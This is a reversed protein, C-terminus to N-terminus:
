YRGAVVVTAAKAAAPRHQKQQTSCKDNKKM